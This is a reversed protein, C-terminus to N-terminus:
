FTFACQVGSVGPACLWRSPRHEHAYLLLAVGTVTLAAGAAFGVIQLPRLVEETSAKLEVCEPNQRWSERCRLGQYRRLHDAAFATAAVGVGLGAVGAALTSFGLPRVWAPAPARFLM